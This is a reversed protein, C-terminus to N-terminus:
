LMMMESKASDCSCNALQAELEKIRLVYFKRAKMEAMNENATAPILHEPNLCHRVACSHHIQEEQHLEGLYAKAVLRHLLYAKRKGDQSMEVKAYGYKNVAYRWLWCDDSVTVYRQLMMQELVPWKETLLARVLQVKTYM